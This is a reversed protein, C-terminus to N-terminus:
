PGTPGSLNLVNYAYETHAEGALGDDVRVGFIQLEKVNVEDAIINNDAPIVVTMTDAPSALVTWPVVQADNTKDDLRWEVTTPVLPDGDFDTFVMTMRLPSKENVLLMAM